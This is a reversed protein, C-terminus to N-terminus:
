EPIYRLVKLGCGVSWVPICEGSWLKNMLVDPGGDLWTAYGLEGSLGEEKWAHEKQAPPDYPHVPQVIRCKILMKYRADVLYGGMFMGPPYTALIAVLVWYYPVSEIKAETLARYICFAESGAGLPYLVFFTNYRLWQLLKSEGGSLSVIYFPYRCVETIGWAVLM